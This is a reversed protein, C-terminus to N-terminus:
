IMKASGRLVATLAGKALVGEDSFSDEIAIALESFHGM